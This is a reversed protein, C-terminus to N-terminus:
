KRNYKLKYIVFPIIGLLFAYKRDIARNTLGRHISSQEPLYPTLLLIIVVPILLILLDKLWPKIKM